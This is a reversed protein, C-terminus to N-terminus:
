KKIRATKKKGKGTTSIYKNRSKTHINGQRRNKWIM